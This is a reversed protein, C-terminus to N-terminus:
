TLANNGREAGSRWWVQNRWEPVKPLEQQQFFATEIRMYWSRSITIPPRNLFDTHRRTIPTMPKAGEKAM